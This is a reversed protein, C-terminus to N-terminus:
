DEAARGLALRYGPAVAGADEAMFGLDRLLGDHLDYIWARVSLPQGGAWAQQVVTTRCVNRAQEIANLEALKRARAADDPQAALDEGHKAAVDKIHRLWNDALGHTEGDLAAAVGGCGYHGCVIVHKVRLVSVAYELVTLANLDSHPVVNAINRHVFVEGPDLGTIVNAPVRSDACGIWLFAPAQQAALREFYGADGAVVTEAWARNRELLENPGDM